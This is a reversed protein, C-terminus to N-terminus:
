GPARYMKKKKIEIRSKSNLGCCLEDMHFDMLPESAHILTDYECQHTLLVVCLLKNYMATNPHTEPDTHTVAPGTCFM